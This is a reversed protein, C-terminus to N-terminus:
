TMGKEEQRWYKRTDLGKRILQSVIIFDNRGGCIDYQTASGSVYVILPKLLIYEYFKSQYHFARLRTFFPASYISFM